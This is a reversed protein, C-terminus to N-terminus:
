KLITLETNLLKVHGESAATFLVNSLCTDFRGGFYNNSYNNFCECPQILVMRPGNGILSTFGHSSFLLQIASSYFNIKNENM